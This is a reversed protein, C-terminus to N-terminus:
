FFNNCNSKSQQFIYMKEVSAPWSNTVSLGSSGVSNFRDGQLKTHRIIIANNIRVNTKLLSGELLFCAKLQAGQARWKGKGGLLTGMFALSALFCSRVARKTGSSFIDVWERARFDKQYDALISCSVKSLESVRGAKGASAASTVGKSSVKTM